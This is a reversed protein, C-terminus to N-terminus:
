TNATTEASITRDSDFNIVNRQKIKLTWLSKLKQSLEIAKNQDYGIKELDKQTKEIVDKIVTKYIRTAEKSTSNISSMASQKLHLLEFYKINQPFINQKQRFLGIADILTYFSKQLKEYCSDGGRVIRGKIINFLKIHVM